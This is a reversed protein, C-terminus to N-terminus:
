AAMQRSRSAAGADAVAIIYPIRLEEAKKEGASVIRRADSLTLSLMKRPM